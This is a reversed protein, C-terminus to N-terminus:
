PIVVRAVVTDGQADTNAEFEVRDAMRGVPNTTGAVLQGATASLEILDGAELTEPNATIATKEIIAPHTGQVVRGMEANAAYQGATGGEELITKRPALGAFNPADGSAGAKFKGAGDAALAAFEKVTASAVGELPPHFDGGVPPKNVPSTSAVGNIKVM